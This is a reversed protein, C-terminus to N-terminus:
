GGRLPRLLLPPERGSRIARWDAAQRRTTDVVGQASVRCETVIVQELQEVYQTIRHDNGIEVSPHNAAIRAGTPEEAMRRIWRDSKIGM